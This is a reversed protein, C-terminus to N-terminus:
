YMLRHHLLIKQHKLFGAFFTNIILTVIASFLLLDMENGNLIPRGFWHFLCVAMCIYFVGLLIRIVYGRVGM